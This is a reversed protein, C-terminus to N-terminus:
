GRSVWLTRRRLAAWWPAPVIWARWPAPALWVRRLLARVRTYYTMLDTISWGIWMTATQAAWGAIRVSLRNSSREGCMTRRWNSCALQGCSNTRREMWVTSWPRWRLKPGIFSSTFRLHNKINYSVKECSIIETENRFATQFNPNHTNCSFHM